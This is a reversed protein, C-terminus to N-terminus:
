RSRCPPFLHSHPKRHTMRGLVPQWFWPWFFSIGDVCPRSCLPWGSFRFGSNRAQIIQSNLHARPFHAIQLQFRARAAPRKYAPAAARYTGHLRREILSAGSKLEVGNGLNTSRGMPGSSCLSPEVNRSLAEHLGAEGTCRIRRHPLIHATGPFFEPSGPGEGM